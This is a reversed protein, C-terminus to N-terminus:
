FFQWFNEPENYPATNCTRFLKDLHGTTKVLNEAYENKLSLIKNECFSFTQIKPVLIEHWLQATGKRGLM